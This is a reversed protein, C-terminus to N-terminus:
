AETARSTQSERRSFPGPGRRCTIHGPWPASCRAELELASVLDIELEKNIAGKSAQLALRPLAALKAAFAQAEEMLRETPVIKMVLGLSLAQEASIPDGTFIM